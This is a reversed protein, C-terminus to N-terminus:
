VSQNISKPMREESLSVVDKKVLQWSEKEMDVTHDGGPTIVNKRLHLFRIQLCFAGYM